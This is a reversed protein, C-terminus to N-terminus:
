RARWCSSAASTACRRREGGARAARRGHRAEQARRGARARAQKREELLAAVRAPLEDLPRVEAAGCVERLASCRARRAHKRAADGTLAEIRRVGAAVASEGVVTVLGIDGTRRVHTGGCLEVSYARTRRRRQTATAWRSSACRTATNRASCRGRAPRRDGRRRAMLRTTVPANQLVITTPSTRSRSSSTPAHDAESALLRLAAPRARGALGEARCPRRAGPAAGRAASADGFPQRPDGLPARSRGRARLAAGVKLTGESSRAPICSSTASRRRRTPSARVRVGDGTMVGTDGVQGGSEGYFPTQNVFSAVARARRSSTSRRATARGAGHVVGEARRPRTASSSPRASAERAPRVLGDRDRGRRLGGLGRAGEARQREMAANFGDIDVGIGRPACRM